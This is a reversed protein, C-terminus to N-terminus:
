IFPKFRFRSVSDPVGEIMPDCFNQVMELNIFVELTFMVTQKRRQLTIQGQITTVLGFM